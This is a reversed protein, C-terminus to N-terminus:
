AASLTALEATLNARARAGRDHQMTETVFLRPQELFRHLVQARGARWAADPVHAYEARVGHVYATYEAPSAGLIALDADILVAGDPDDAIHVATAQVLQAVAAARAVPWGLEAAAASALAASRAENDTAQPDYVVDHFLAALQVAAMDTVPEGAAVLAAIHRLVWMVHTANHYRRHPQRHAALLADLLHEHGAGALQRWVARLEVEPATM